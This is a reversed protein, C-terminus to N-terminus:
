KITLFKRPLFSIGNGNEICTSFTGTLHLFAFLVFVIFFLCSIFIGMWFSLSSSKAISATMGIVNIELSSTMLKKKVDIYKM